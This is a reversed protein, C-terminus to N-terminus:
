SPPRVSNRSCLSGTQPTSSAPRSRGPKRIFTSPCIETRFFKQIEGDILCILLRQTETSANM